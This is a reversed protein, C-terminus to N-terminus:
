SIFVKMVAEINQRCIVCSEIRTCCRSCTFFHRCPLIVTNMKHNFCIKCQFNVNEDELTESTQNVSSEPQQQQQLQQHQQEEQQNCVEDEPHSNTFIEIGWKKLFSERNDYVDGKNLVFQCKPQAKTHDDLPDDDKEWMFFEVGCYACRVIDAVKISYFGAGALKSPNIMQNPWDVFTKLRDVETKLNLSTFRDPTFRTFM